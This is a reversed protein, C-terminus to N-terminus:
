QARQSRRTENEIAREYPTLKGARARAEAADNKARVKAAREPGVMSDFRADFAHFGSANYHVAIPSYVRRLKAGCDHRVPFTAKMPKEIEVAGCNSCEADYTM